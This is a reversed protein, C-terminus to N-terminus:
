FAVRGGATESRRKWYMETSHEANCGALRHLTPQRTMGLPFASLPLTQIEPILTSFLQNLNVSVFSHNGIEPSNKQIMQMFFLLVRGCRM